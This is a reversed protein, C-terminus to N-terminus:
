SVRSASKSAFALAGSIALVIALSLLTVEVPLLPLGRPGFTESAGTWSLSQATMRIWQAASGFLSIWGDADEPSFRPLAPTGVDLRLSPLVRAALSAGLSAVFAFSALKLGRRWGARRANPLSSAATREPLSAMVADFFSEDVTVADDLDDLMAALRTERALVIRCSTCEEVHDALRLAGLPDLDGEVSRVISSRMRRCRTM